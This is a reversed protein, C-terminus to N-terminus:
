LRAASITTTTKAAAATATAFRGQTRAPELDCVQSPAVIGYKTLIDSAAQLLALDQALPRQNKIENPFRSRLPDFAEYFERALDNSKNKNNLLVVNNNLHSPIIRQMDGFRIVVTDVWALTAQTERDLILKTLIPPCFLKGNQSIANFNVLDANRDNSNANWTWPYLKGGFPVAGQGLNAL